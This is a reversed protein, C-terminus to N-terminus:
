WGSAMFIKADTTWSNRIRGTPDIKPALFEGENKVRKDSVRACIAEFKANRSLSSNSFM